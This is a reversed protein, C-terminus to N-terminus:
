NVGINQSAGSALIDFGDEGILWKLGLVEVM